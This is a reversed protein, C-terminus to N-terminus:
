GSAVVVAIYIAVGLVVLGTAIWGVIIGALALGRGTTGKEAIRRLAVHGLVAGVPCAVIPIVCSFALVLGLVSTLLAGLALGEIPASPPGYGYGPM